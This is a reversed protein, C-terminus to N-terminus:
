EEGKKLAKIKALRGEAEELNRLALTNNPETELTQRWVRIADEFKNEVYFDIGQYYLELNKASMFKASGALKQRTRAQYIKLEMYNPDFKAVTDFEVMAPAYQGNYYDSIGQFYHLAKVYEKSLAEKEARSQRQREKALLNQKERQFGQQASKLVQEMNKKTEAIATQARREGEQDLELQRARERERRQEAITMGLRCSLSIRHTMGLEAQVLAYDLSFGYGDVGAGASWSDSRIGARLAILDLIRYEAGFALRVEQWTTKEMGASFLVQQRIADKFRLCYAAGAKIQFPFFEAQNGLRQGSTWLNQIGLGVTLADGDFPLTGVLPAWVKEPFRALLGVDLGVGSAINGLLRQQDLKVQVGGSVGYGMDRAFALNYERLDLSGAAEDLLEAQDNRLVIGSTAVRLGTFAFTGWDMWPYAVGLFDYPTEFFLSLHMASIEIQPVSALGAPNWFASVLDGGVATFAGSLAHPRAGAGLDFPNSLGGDWAAPAVRASALVCIFFFLVNRPKRM